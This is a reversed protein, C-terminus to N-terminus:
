NCVQFIHKLIINGHVVSEFVDREKLNQCSADEQTDQERGDLSCTRGVVIGQSIWKLIPYVM